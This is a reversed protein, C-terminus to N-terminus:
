SPALPMSTFCIFFSSLLIVFQSGVFFILKATTSCCPSPTRLTGSPHPTLGPFLPTHRLTHASTKQPGPPHTQTHTDKDRHRPKHKKVEPSIPTDPHTHRSTCMCTAQTQSPQEPTQSSMPGSHTGSPSPSAAPFCPAAQGHLDEQSCSSGPNKVRHRPLQYPPTHLPADRDLPM